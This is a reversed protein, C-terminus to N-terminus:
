RHHPQHPNHNKHKGSKIKKPKKYHFPSSASKQQPHLLSAHASMSGMFALVALAACRVFPKAM